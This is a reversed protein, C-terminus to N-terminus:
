ECFGIGPSSLQYKCTGTGSPCPHSPDCLAACKFNGTTSACVTGSSCAEVSSCASGRPLNGTPPLCVGGTTSAAFCRQGNMCTNAGFLDCAPFCDGYGDSGTAVCGQTADCGSPTQDTSCTAFFRPLCVPGQTFQVCAGGPGCEGDVFTCASSCFSNTGAAVCLTGPTGACTQGVTCPTIVCWGQDASLGEFGVCQAGGGVATCQAQNATDCPSGLFLSSQCQGFGDTGVPVCQEGDACGSPTRDTRCTAISLSLCIQAPQGSIADVANVCSNGDGCSGATGNCTKACYDPDGFESCVTESPCAATENCNAKLCVGTGDPQVGLCQAGPALAACAEQHLNANCTDGLFTPAPVMMGGSSSSGGGSSSSSSSGTVCVGGECALGMNCTNNPYCSGGQTGQPPAVCKNNNCTLGTNCTGNGYCQGNLTGTSPRTCVNNTCDLGLDCTGNPYCAGGQSGAIPMTSGSSSSSPGSSSSSASQFIVECVNNNCRLGLNCTGNGYCAGGETGAAAAECTSGNCRLGANCTGNGYCRGGEEGDRLVAGSSSSSSPQATICVNNDCALGTNCTSNPYCAGGLTGAIPASSSPAVASSSPPQASSSEAASSSM